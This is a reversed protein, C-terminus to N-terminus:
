SLSQLQRFSHPLRLRRGTVHVDAGSREDMGTRNVDHTYIIMTRYSIM